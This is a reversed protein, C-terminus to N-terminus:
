TGDILPGQLRVCEDCERFAQERLADIREHAQPSNKHDVSTTGASAAVTRDGELEALADRLDELPKSHTCMRLRGRMMTGNNADSDSPWGMWDGTYIRGSTSKKLACAGSLSAGYLNWFTFIFEGTSSVQGEVAYRAMDDDWSFRHTVTARGRYRNLSRALFFEVMDSVLVKSQSYWTLRWPRSELFHVRNNFPEMGEEVPRAAFMEIVDAPIDGDYDEGRRVFVLDYGVAGGELSKMSTMLPDYAVNRDNVFPATLPEPMKGTKRYDRAREVLERVLEEHQNRLQMRVNAWSAETIEPVLFLERSSWEDATLDALGPESEGSQTDPIATEVHVTPHILVPEALHLLDELMPELDEHLQTARAELEKDTLETAPGGVSSFLDEERFRNAFAKVSELEWLQVVSDGDFIPPKRGELCQLLIAKQQGDSAGQAVGCEWLCYSWDDDPRSYVLAVMEANRLESRLDDRISSGPTLGTDYKSFNFVSVRGGTATRIFDEIRAAVRADAKKHSLFVKGKTDTM